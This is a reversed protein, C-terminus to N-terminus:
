VTEAYEKGCIKDVFHEIIGAILASLKDIRLLAALRARVFEVALGALFLAAAAAFVILVGRWLEVGVVFGLRDKIVYDWMIRNMQFLYVGFALPSIARVLRENPTLRSFLRLMILANLLVLPSVYRLLLGGHSILESLWSLSVSGVLWLLLTSSRRQEFLRIKRSLGGILYLLMIWLASYGNSLKFPDVLTSMVSFLVFSTLIIRKAETENVSFIIRDLLPMAFFLAFYATFYWFAGFTVPMLDKIVTKVGAGTDVGAFYFIASVIFSYFFAQFWMSIIKGLKQPRGTATFGSILAFVDVACYCITELLWYVAFSATGPSCSSLIGGHGLFHLMCVMLMLVPRLLDIGYNRKM